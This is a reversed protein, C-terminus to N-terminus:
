LHELLADICLTLQLMKSAQFKQLTSVLEGRCSEDPVGKARIIFFNEEFILIFFM